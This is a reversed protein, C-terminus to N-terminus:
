VGCFGKMFNIKNTIPATPPRRLNKRVELSIKLEILSPGPQSLFRPLYALLEVENDFSQASKYGCGLAIQSFSISFGATPQNGVSAHAGNNLIIHRFNASARTGIIALSGMHMIVAGDGDLCFIRRQPASMAIGLAIQSAHGMSGVVLFDRSHEADLGSLGLNCRERIEYLERSIHGTTAVIRDEPCLSSIILEIARERSLQLANNHLIDNRISHAICPSAFTNQKVVIAVARSETKMLCLIENIADIANEEEFPLIRYPIDLADLLTLTIQGQKIHQPEDKHGPQGRWGIILLLPISYIDKDVLSTLPNVANGQGSNQMYVAAYQKTALHYGSAIAIASGENAAILHHSPAISRSVFECFCALLSDPVGTFFAVGHSYLLNAFKQCDIMGVRRTHAFCSRTYSSM